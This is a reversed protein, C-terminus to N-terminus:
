KSIKTKYATFIGSFLLLPLIGDSLPVSLEWPPTENSNIHYLYWLQRYYWGFLSDNYDLNDWDINNPAKASSNEEDTYPPKTQYETFPEKIQPIYTFSQLMIFAALLAISIKLKYYM